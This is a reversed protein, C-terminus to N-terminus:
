CSKKYCNNIHTCLKEFSDFMQYCIECVYKRHKGRMHIDYYFFGPWSESCIPCTFVQCRHIEGKKLVAKCVICGGAGDDLGGAVKDLEEDSLAKSRNNIIKELEEDPLNLLEKVKEIEKEIIKNKGKKTLEEFNIELNKRFNKLDEKDSM